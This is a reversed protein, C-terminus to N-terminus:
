AAGGQGKAAAVADQGLRVVTVACGIGQEDADRGDVVVLEAWGEAHSVVCGWVDSALGLDGSAVLDFLGADRYGELVGACAARCPMEVWWTARRGLGSSAADVLMAGRCPQPETVGEAVWASRDREGLEINHGAAPLGTLEAGADRAAPVRAVM